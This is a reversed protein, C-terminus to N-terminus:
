KGQSIPLMAAGIIGPESLIATEIEITQMGIHVMSYFYKKMLDFYSDKSKTVGGGIVFMYPDVVHAIASMMSAFDYSMEDIIKLAVQNGEKALSFIEGASTIKDNIVEKAKKVMATGSAENEVAGANLHNYKKRNRDIIINAIEGAHGNKGSVVQGNVILAGGIGTSHTIYYVIPKGKGAGVLAEALGAVNADNDVYAPMNFEDSLIKAIPFREFGPLNTAMIMEGRITDVPGPVGVGIGKCDEYGPIEKILRLLNDMVKSPGELAYSPSKLEELIHGDRTIKAVRVNTGGLDIGIYTNM